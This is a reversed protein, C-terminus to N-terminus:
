WLQRWESYYMSCDYESAFDKWTEGCRRLTYYTMIGSGTKELRYKFEAYIVPGGYRHVLNGKVIPGCGQIFCFKSDSSEGKSVDGSRCKLIDPFFGDKGLGHKFDCGRIDYRDCSFEHVLHPCLSLNDQLATSGSVKIESSSESSNFSQNLLGADQLSTNEPNDSASPQESGSSPEPISSPKPVTNSVTPVSVDSVPKKESSGLTKDVAASPKLAACGSLLLSSFVLLSIAVFILTLVLKKM